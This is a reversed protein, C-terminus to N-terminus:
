EHSRGGNLLTRQLAAILAQAGALTSHYWVFPARVADIVHLIIEVVKGVARRVFGFGERVQPTLQKLGKVLAYLILLPIAYLVMTQLVILVVAVDRAIPLVELWM